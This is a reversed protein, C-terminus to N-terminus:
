SNDPCYRNNKRMNEIGLITRLNFQNHLGCVLKSRLPVIHDVHYSEGTANKLRLAEAYFEEMKSRDAWAPTARIKRSQYMRMDATRKAPNSEKWAKRNATARDKNLSNWLKARNSEREYNETYRKRALISIRERNAENWSKTTASKRAANKERWARGLESYREKNSAYYKRANASRSEKNARNYQAHCDKCKFQLGDATSACKSFSHIDKRAGCTRCIKQKM